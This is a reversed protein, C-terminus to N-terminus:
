VCVLLVWFVAKSKYENKHNAIIILYYHVKEFLRMNLDVTQLFLQNGVKVQQVMVNLWLDDVDELGQNRVWLFSHDLFETAKTKKLLSGKKAGVNPFTCYDMNMITSRSDMEISGLVQVLM